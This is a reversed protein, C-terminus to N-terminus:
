PARAPRSDPRAPWLIGRLWALLVLLLGLPILAPRRQWAGTHTVVTGLARLAVVPPTMYVRIYRGAPSHKYPELDVLRTILASALVAPALAAISGALPKHHWFLYLSVVEASIDAALKLPHIQHYLVKEQPTM